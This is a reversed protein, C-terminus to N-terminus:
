VICVFVLFCRSRLEEMLGVLIDHSEHPFMTQLFLMSNLFNISSSAAGPQAVVAHSHSAPIAVADAGSGPASSRLLIAHAVAEVQNNHARFDAEVEARPLQFAEAIDRM